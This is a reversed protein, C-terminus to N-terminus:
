ARQRPKVDAPRCFVLSSHDQTKARYMALDANHIIEKSTTGDDPIMAAGVAAGIQHSQGGIRIESKLSAILRLGIARATDRDVNYSLLAFEDGGLRALLDSPRRVTQFREAVVQLVHIVWRTGKLTTSASSPM